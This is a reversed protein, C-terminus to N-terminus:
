FEPSRSEPEPAPVKILQTLKLSDLGNETLSANWDAVGAVEFLAALTTADHLSSRQASKCAEPLKGEKWLERVKARRM